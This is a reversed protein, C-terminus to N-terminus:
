SFPPTELSESEFDSGHYVEVYAKVRYTTGSEYPYTRVMNASNSYFADTWTELDTYIGLFGKKQLTMEIRIEQVIGEYGNVITTCVVGNSNIGGNCDVNSIYLYLPMIGDDSYTQSVSVSENDSDNNETALVGTSLVCLMLAFTVIAKLMKKMKTEEKRKHDHSDGMVYYVCFSNGKQPCFFDFNKEKRM